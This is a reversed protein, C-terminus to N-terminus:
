ALDQVWDPANRSSIWLSEGTEKLKFDPGKPNRKPYPGKPSNDFFKYKENRLIDWLELERELTIKPFPGKAVVNGGGQVGGGRGGEGPPGRQSASAPANVKSPPLSEGPKPECITIEDAEVVMDMRSNGEKDVFNDIRLRGVVAVKMNKALKESAVPGLGDYVEITFRQNDKTTSGSFVYLPLRGIIGMPTEVTELSAGLLGSLSITGATKNADKFSIKEITVPGERPFRNVYSPDTNDDTAAAAVTGLRMTHTAQRAATAGMMAAARAARGFTPLMLSPSAKQASVPLSIKLMVIHTGM